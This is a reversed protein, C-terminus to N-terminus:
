RSPLACRTRPGRSRVSPRRWVATQDPQSLKEVAAVAQAYNNQAAYMEREANRLEVQDPGSALKQMDSEAKQLQLRATQIAQDAARVELENPGAYAQNYSAM